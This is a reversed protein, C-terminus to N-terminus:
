RSPDPDRGCATRQRRRRWDRWAATRGQARVWAPYGSCGPRCAPPLTRPSGTTATLCWASSGGSRTGPRWTGTTSGASSWPPPGRGRRWPPRTDPSPQLTSHRQHNRPCCPATRPSEALWRQLHPVAASDGMLELAVTFAAHELGTVESLREAIPVTWERAGLRGLAVAARGRPAAPDALLAGLRPAFSQDGSLGMADVLEPAPPSGVGADGGDSLPGQQAYAHLPGPPLRLGRGVATRLLDQREDAAFAPEAFLRLLAEDGADGLDRLLWTLYRGFAARDADSRYLEEAAEALRSPRDTNLACLETWPDDARLAARLRTRTTDYDGM